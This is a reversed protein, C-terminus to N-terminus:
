KKEEIETYEIDLNIADIEEQLLKIAELLLEAFKGIEMQYGGHVLHSKNVDELIQVVRERKEFIEKKM